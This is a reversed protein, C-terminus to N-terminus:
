KSELEKLEFYEKQLKANEERLRLVERQVVRERDTVKVYDTLSNKGFLLEAFYFGLPIVTAFFVFYLLFNDGKGRKKHLKGIEEYVTNM